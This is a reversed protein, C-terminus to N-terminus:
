NGSETGETSTENGTMLSSLTHSMANGGGVGLSGILEREVGQFHDRTQIPIDDLGPRQLRHVTVIAAPQMGRELNHM